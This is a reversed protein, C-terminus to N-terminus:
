KNLAILQKMFNRCLVITNYITTTFFFFVFKEVLGPKKCSVCRVIRTPRVLYVLLHFIQVQSHIFYNKIIHPLLQFYGDHRKKLLGLRFKEEKAANSLLKRTIRQNFIFLFQYDKIHSNCSILFGLLLQMVRSFYLLYTTTSLQTRYTNSSDRICM